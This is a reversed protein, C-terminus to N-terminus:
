QNEQTSGYNRQLAATIVAVQEDDSLARPTGLAAARHHLTALWELLLANDVAKELSSGIAVSGHNAMLAAQRDALAERVARALETTGFTAYPAVRIAGGLLLHQYHLVPLEDLVCAAATSYPAHTHVVAATSTTAYIGLHLDLESTPVLDGELVAGDEAVVTVEDPTCGSLVVGTATVAIRAGARASVNGATGILLGEAALRRAAAAVSDRLDDTM